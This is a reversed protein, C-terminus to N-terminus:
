SPREATSSVRGGSAAPASDKDNGHRVDAMVPEVARKNADRDSRSVAAELRLSIAVGPLDIDAKKM